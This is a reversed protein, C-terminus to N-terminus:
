RRAVAEEILLQNFPDGVQKRITEKKGMTM